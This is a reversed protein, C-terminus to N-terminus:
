RGGAKGDAQKGDAQKVTRRKVTRRKVTRRKEDAETDDGQKGDAGRGARRKCRCGRRRAPSDRLLWRYTAYGVASLQV